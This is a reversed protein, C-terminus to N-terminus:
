MMGEVLFVCRNEWDGGDPKQSSRRGWPLLSQWLKYPSFTLFIIALFFAFAWLKSPIVVKKPPEQRRWTGSACGGNTRSGEEIAVQGAHITHTTGPASVADIHPVGSQSTFRLHSSWLFMQIEKKELFLHFEYIGMVFFVHNLRWHYKGTAMSNSGSRRFASMGQMDVWFPRFGKAM